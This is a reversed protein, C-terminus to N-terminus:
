GVLSSAERGGRRPAPDDRNESPEVDSVDGTIASRLLAVLRRRNVLFLLGALGLYTWALWTLTTITRAEDNRYVFALGVQVAFLGALTLASVLGFRLRLLLAIGLLSQAATLFFEEGQRPDLPLPSTAGAGISLALPLMGVLLTWQNIKDSIMAILGDGARNARVFLVAVTIAPAESALPALWQILLFENLGIARGTNVMAEAFPEASVLIVGSATAVLGAMAAWQLGPSLTDLAAAPGPEEAEEPNDSKQMSRVRWVYTGFIALLVVFDVLSITRKLVIVFAYLSAVLLFGVEVANGPALGISRHRDKMWHLAVMLPWALGVLLRNAGTMNAAAYQAYRSDPGSAGAMYAYYIDVAYEPLVTVLAVAALILGQSVYQEATEAGWSLLFGAALIAIGFAAVDVFPSLRWGGFRLIVAPLTAAVAVAVLMLFRKM